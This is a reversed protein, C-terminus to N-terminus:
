RSPWTASTAQLTGATPPHHLLAVRHEAGAAALDALAEGV